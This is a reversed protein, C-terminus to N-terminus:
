LENAKEEKELLEACLNIYQKGIKSNKKNVLTLQENTSNIAEVLQSIKTDFTINNFESIITKEVEKSINTKTVMTM